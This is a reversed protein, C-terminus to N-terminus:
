HKFSPHASCLCIWAQLFHYSRPCTWRMDYLSCSRNIKCVLINDQKLVDFNSQSM